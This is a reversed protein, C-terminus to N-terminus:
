VNVADMAAVMKRRKAVPKEKKAAAKTAAAQAATKHDSAEKALRLVRLRASKEQEAKRREDYESRAVQEEQKKFFANAARSYKRNM